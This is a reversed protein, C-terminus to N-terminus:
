GNARRWRSEAREELVKFCTKKFEAKTRTSANTSLGIRRKVEEPTFYVDEYTDDENRQSRMPGTTQEWISLRRFVEEANEETIRNVGIPITAFIMMETAVWDRGDMIDKHNAVDAVSWDLSM